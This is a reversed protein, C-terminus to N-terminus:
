SVADASQRQLMALLKAVTPRLERRDVIMDLAGKQLLFESRQFGEPLKERVTNEIVRPGAFGILAKPEAIVVDGVFAFSASVGGMTPDTLVSIYPLKARALRTLAANTKAMQMLSLLGEQMRAGGTATFCIFPVKQELATEVGRAFREGVVSGMSGGMFDFEFCAAVVPMSMVSGGMVVLADTEGTAEMAEKIRDPYKKSDKFKLADVPVVEQAVEYRGEDDLFANLRERAGIRHHHGCKPCVNVNGDLDTKYLVTECADCKVWLGEPMARRESPRSQQIKPPLLKDLWSM